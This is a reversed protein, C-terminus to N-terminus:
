SISLYSHVALFYLISTIHLLQLHSAQPNMNTTSLCARIGMCVPEPFVCVIPDPKETDVSASDKPIRAMTSPNDSTLLPVHLSISRQHRCRCPDNWPRTLPYKLRNRRLPRCLWTCGNVRPFSHVIDQLDCHYQGRHLTNQGPESATMYLRVLKMTHPPPKPKFSCPEGKTM